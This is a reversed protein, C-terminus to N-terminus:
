IQILWGEAGKVGSSQGLLLAPQRLDLLVNQVAAPSGRDLQRQRELTPAEHEVGRVLGPAIGISVEDSQGAIDAVDSIALLGLNSMARVVLPQVPGQLRGM